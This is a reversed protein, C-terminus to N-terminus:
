MIRREYADAENDYISAWAINQLEDLSVLTLKALTKPILVHVHIPFKNLKDFADEDYKNILYFVDPDYDGLNYKQGILFKDVEVKLVKRNGIVIKQYDIIKRVIQFDLYDDSTLFLNM